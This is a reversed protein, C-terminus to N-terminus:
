AKVRGYSDNFRVIDDEGVYDGSQVEIMVLDLVGPNELRHHCGAPIFTSENPAVFFVNEGNTVRAMGSVVVWHESRHHHMQLSLSQGPKVVIRKIKFRDGEELTTYNGWPRHVTQHLKYSENGQEKLTNYIDKVYQASDKHSILVADQTDVVILDEVGVMAVLRKDSQVFCNKTHNLMASGSVRNGDEDAATLTSMADWAGIDNWGIDCPIVAVNASKEMVAYDISNSPVNAFTNAEFEVQTIDTNDKLSVEFCAKATNLIDPAHRQLEAVLTSAKACFMGSNWYFKGSDVYAQATALNPKEVFRAVEYGITSQNSTIPKAQNAEIYGYGTEPAHPQIGFTVIKGTQAILSANTVAQQFAAQNAILHDATLILLIADEGHQKAVYLAALAVAAATNRGFPELLFSTKTNTQNVERYDDKTKFLLERNTVTLVETVNPLIAGRIFSKQLFSENDALRIFPKPHLERSVPWLRSGAGGCLITPIINM